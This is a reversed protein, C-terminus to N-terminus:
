LSKNCTLVYVVAVQLHYAKLLQKELGDGVRLRKGCVGDFLALEM